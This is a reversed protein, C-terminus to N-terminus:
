ARRWLLAVVTWALAIPTAIAFAFAGFFLPASYWPVGTEWTFCTRWWVAICLFAAVPLALTLWAPIVWNSGRQKPRLGASPSLHQDM